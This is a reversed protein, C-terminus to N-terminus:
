LYLHKPWEAVPLKRRISERTSDIWFAPWLCSFLLWSWKLVDPWFALGLGGVLVAWKLARFVRARSPTYVPLFPVGFLFGLAIGALLLVRAVAVAGTFLFAATGLLAAVPMALLLWKVWPRSCIAQAEWEGKRLMRAEAATLLVRRYQCNATKADGLAAVVLRDAEDATAGGSVAEEWASEYHELIEARVKDASDKSLHRTAQRLWNDLGTM